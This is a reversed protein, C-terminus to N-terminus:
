FEKTQFMCFIDCEPIVEKNNGRDAALEDLYCEKLISAGIKRELEARRKFVEPFDVRIKNWYGMGGKVCGVCNNNRYGLEYMRPRKIGLEQLIAHSSEKTIHNEILPFRHKYDPMSTILRDARHKETVDMGWVYTIDEGKHKDEWQKRVRKKLYSTCPAFGSRMTIVGAALIANEVTEYESKLIEVKKNFLKECDKIFRLTDEEQDKIDIYIYKDIEDKMLYGAIFSSVGASLWCVIVGVVNM